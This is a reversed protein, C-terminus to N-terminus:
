APVRHDGDSGRGLRRAMMIIIRQCAQIHRAEGAVSRDGPVSVRGHWQAAADARVAAATSSRACPATGAAGAPPAPAAPRTPAVAATTATVRHIMLCCAKVQPQPCGSGAHSPRQLEVRIGSCLALQHSSRAADQRVRGVRGAGVLRQQLPDASRVQEGPQVADDACRVRCACGAFYGEECGHLRHRCQQPRQLHPMM